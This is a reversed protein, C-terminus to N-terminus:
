FFVLKRQLSFKILYKYKTTRKITSDTVFLCFLMQAYSFHLLVSYVTIHINCYTVVVVVTVNYILSLLITFSFFFFHFEHTYKYIYYIINLIM